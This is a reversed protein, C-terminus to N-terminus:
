KPSELGLDEYELNIGRALCAKLVAVLITHPYNASSNLKASTTMEKLARLSPATNFHAEACQSALQSAIKHGEQAVKSAGINLPRKLAAEALKDKLKAIVATTEDPVAEEAAQKTQEALIPALVSGFIGSGKAPPPPPEPTSAEKYRQGPM